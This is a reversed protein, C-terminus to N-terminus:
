SVEPSPVAGSYVTERVQPTCIVFSCGSGERFV